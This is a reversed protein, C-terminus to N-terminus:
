IKIRIILRSDALEASISGNMQEIFTRAISLGLGTSNRAAQVTYFRDFLREVQVKTLDAATNSFIIEGEASLSIFLDGGSYKLANNMLNNFTRALANKNVKRIVKEECLEIEPTIGKESLAAYYGMICDELVQNVSLEEIEADADSSLIVSYRFLEETLQKMLEARGGIIDLYKEMQESKEEKKMVELYGCIATLPTRLDHSINTIAAKLEADGSVYRNHEARLKKLQTNISGALERMDRDASHISIVTNTDTELKEAFQRKISRAATKLSIIKIVLAATIVAFLVYVM